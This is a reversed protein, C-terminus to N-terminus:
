AEIPLTETKQILYITSMIAVIVQIMQGNRFGSLYLATRSRITETRMTSTRRKQHSAVSVIKTTGYSITIGFAKAQSNEM